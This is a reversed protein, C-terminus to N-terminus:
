AFDMGKPPKDHRKSIMIKSVPNSKVAKQGNKEKAKEITLLIQSNTQLSGFHHSETALSIIIGEGLGDFGNEWRRPSVWIETSLPRM